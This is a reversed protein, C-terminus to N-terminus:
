ETKNALEDAKRRREKEWRRYADRELKEVLASVFPRLKTIRGDIYTVLGLTAMVGHKTPVRYGVWLRIDKRRYKLKKVRVIVPYPIYKRGRVM